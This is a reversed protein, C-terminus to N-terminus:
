REYRVDRCAEAHQRRWNALDAPWAERSESLNSPMPLTVRARRQIDSIPARWPEVSGKPISQQPMIFGVAEGTRHDVVVKFFAAPVPLADPGITQSVGYIPGVYVQLDGRQLAWARVDEELREWGERNLGPLQPNVNAMSFTDHQESRSWAFDENPAMHGLDYGSHAYDVPRGQAEPPALEDLGFRLGSRSYCGLDHQATLEYSVWRAERTNLDLGSSYGEHCIVIIRHGDTVAPPGWPESLQCATVSRAQPEAITLVFIGVAIGLLFRMSTGV